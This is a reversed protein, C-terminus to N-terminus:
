AYFTRIVDESAAIRCDTIPLKDITCSVAHRHWCWGTKFHRAITAKPCSASVPNTCLSTRKECRLPRLAAIVRSRRISGCCVEALTYRPVVCSSEAM